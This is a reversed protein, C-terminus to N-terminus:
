ITEDIEGTYRASTNISSAPNGGYAKRIKGNYFVLGYITNGDDGVISDPEYDYTYRNSTIFLSAFKRVSEPIYEAAAFAEYMPYMSYKLLGASKLLSIRSKVDWATNKISLRFEEDNAIRETIEICQANLESIYEDYSVSKGVELDAKTVATYPKRYKTAETFVLKRAVKIGQQKRERRRIWKSYDPKSETPDLSKDSYPRRAMSTISVYPSGDNYNELIERVMIAVEGVKNQKLGDTIASAMNGLCVAGSASVHPHCHSGQKNGSYPEVMVSTNSVKYMFRGVDVQVNIRETGSTHCLTIPSADVFRHYKDKYGIYILRADDRVKKLQRLLRKDYKEPVYNELDSEAKDLALAKGELRKEHTLLATEYERQKRLHYELESRARSIDRDILSIEDKAKEVCTELVKKEQSSDYEMVASKINSLQNLNRSQQKYVKNAQEQTLESAKLLALNIEEQSLATFDLGFVDHVPLTYAQNFMGSSLMAHIYGITAHYSNPDSQKKRLWDPANKLLQGITYEKHSAM